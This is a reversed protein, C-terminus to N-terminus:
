EKGSVEPTAGDGHAPDSPMETGNGAMEPLGDGPRADQPSPPTEEATAATARQSARGGPRPRGIKAKPHRRGSAAHPLRRAAHRLPLNRGPLAAPPGPLAAPPRVACPPAGPARPRPVQRGAPPPHARGAPARKRGGVDGCVRADLHARRGDRRGSPLECPMSAYHTRTGGAAGRGHEHRRRMSRLLALRGCSPTTKARSGHRCLMRAGM